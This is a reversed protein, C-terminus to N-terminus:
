EPSPPPPMQPAGVMKKVYLPTSALERDDLYLIFNMVGAHDVRLNTISFVLHTVATANGVGSVNIKGSIPNICNKGDLDRTEIRFTHMSFEHIDFRIRLVLSLQQHLCPFNQTVITDFTGVVTLKGGSEQAFDCFTFIEARM